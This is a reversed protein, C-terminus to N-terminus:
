NMDVIMSERVQRCRGVTLDWLKANHDMSCSAVFESHDTM